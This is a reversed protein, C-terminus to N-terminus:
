ALVRAVQRLAVAVPCDSIHRVMAEGPHGCACSDPNTPADTFALAIQSRTPEPEPFDIVPLSM